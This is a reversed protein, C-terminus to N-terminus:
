DDIRALRALINLVLTGLVLYIAAYAVGEPRVVGLAVEGMATLIISLKAFQGLSAIANSLEQISQAIWGKSQLRV